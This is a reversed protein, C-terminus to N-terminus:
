INESSYLDKPQEWYICTGCQQWLNFIYQKQVMKVTDHHMCNYNIITLMIDMLHLCSYMCLWWLVLCINKVKIQRARWFWVYFIPIQKTRWIHGLNIGVYVDTKSFMESMWSCSFKTSFHFTLLFQDNNNVLTLKQLVNLLKDFYIWHNCAFACYLFLSFCRVDAM